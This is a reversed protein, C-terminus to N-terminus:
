ASNRESSAAEAMLEDPIAQREQTLGQDAKASLLQRWPLWISLAKSTNKEGWALQLPVPQGGLREQIQELVRSFDAGQRDM